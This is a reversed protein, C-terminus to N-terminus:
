NAGTNPKPEKDKARALLNEVTFLLKDRDVPKPCEDIFRDTKHRIHLTTASSVIIPFKPGLHGRILDYVSAGSLGPMMIDTIILDPRFSKIELLLDKTMSLMYVNHSADKLITKLILLCENDDDILLIRAM